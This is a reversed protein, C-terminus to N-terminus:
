PTTEKLAEMREAFELLAREMRGVSFEISNSVQVMQEAAQQMARGARQVDEAGLLTVHDPM